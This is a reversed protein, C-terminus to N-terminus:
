LPIEDSFEDNDGPITELMRQEVAKNVLSGVEWENMPKQRLAEAKLRATVEDVITIGYIASQGFLKTFGKADGIDPVDVRVFSCGGITQESVLGAYSQHGFVEVIAWHEFKENQENSM